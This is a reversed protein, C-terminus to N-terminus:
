KRSTELFDAVLFVRKKRTPPFKPNSKQFIPGLDDIPFGRDRFKQELLKQLVNLDRGTICFFNWFYIGVSSLLLFLLHENKKLNVWSKLWGSVNFFWITEEKVATQCVEKKLIFLGFINKIFLVQIFIKYCKKKLKFVQKWKPKCLKSQGFLM